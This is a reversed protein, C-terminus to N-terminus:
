KLPPLPHAAETTVVQNHHFCGGLAFCVAMAAIAVFIRMVAGEYENSDRMGYPLFEVRFRACKAASNTVYKGCRKAAREVAAQPSPPLAM